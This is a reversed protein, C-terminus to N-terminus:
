VVILALASFVFVLGVSSVAGKMKETFKSWDLFITLFLTIGSAFLTFWMFFTLLSQLENFTM